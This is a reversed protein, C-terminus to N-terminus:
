SAPRQAQDAAFQEAVWKELLDADWVRRRGIRASPPGYGSHVWFRVTSETPQGDADYHGFYEAVERASLFRKM